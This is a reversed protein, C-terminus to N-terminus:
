PNRRADEDNNKEEIRHPGGADVQSVVIGDYVPQKIM